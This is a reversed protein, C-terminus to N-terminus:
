LKRVTRSVTLIEKNFNDIITSIKHYKDLM